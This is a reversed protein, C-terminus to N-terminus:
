LVCLVKDCIKQCVFEEHSSDYFHCARTCKHGCQLRVECLRSCGGDPAALFDEPKSVETLTGPHSQCEPRLACGIQHHQILTTKIRSWLVSNQALSSM